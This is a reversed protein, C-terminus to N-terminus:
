ANRPGRGRSSSRARAPRPSRSRARSAPRERAQEPPPVKSHGNSSGVPKPEPEVGPWNELTDRYMQEVEAAHEGVDEVTWGDPFVPPLIVVEITGPRPFFSGRWMLEGANRIVIPVLPVGAQMAIHFAGKKFPKLKPSESRTGEPAIAFSIGENLMDVVPKLAERASASNARDVYAIPVLMGMPGFLPDRALEKKAVGGLDQKILHGLVFMDLSSQHNFIFVAPRRSWLHQEGRVVRVRVGAIGLALESGVATAFNAADRRSRNMLGVAGAVLGSVPLASLAAVTRAVQTRSPTGRSRFRYARWGKEGAYRALQPQPNLPHPYGVASLFPVDEDGDAYGHSRSLTVRHRRSFERVAKAKNEGWLVSGGLRGTLIGDLVDARSSLVHEIGLDEAVPAAQYRTASTAIVVTHGMRQHAKVLERAEPYIMGAIHDHFLRRSLDELESEPRGAWHVAALEILRTVDAGRLRMELGAMAARALAEPQVERKLLSDRLFVTASYGAILTGDFDFFAGVRPGSPGDEIEQLLPEIVKSM